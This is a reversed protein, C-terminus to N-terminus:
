VRSRGSSELRRAARAKAERRSTRRGQSAPAPASVGALVRAAASEFRAADGYSRAVLLAGELAALLLRAEEMPSGHFGLMGMRQGQELVRALWLENADFFGRLADQMPRPLTTYEAALMGCLCMRNRRLVGSYLQVYGRLLERADHGSADLAELAASFTEQYRIILALGLRAKTPFHYHLSAKTIGV